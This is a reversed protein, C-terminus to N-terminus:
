LQRFGMIHSGPFARVLANALTVSTVSVVKLSRVLVNAVAPGHGPVILFRGSDPGRYFLVRSAGPHSDPRM